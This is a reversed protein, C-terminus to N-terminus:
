TDGKMLLGNQLSNVGSADTVWKRFDNDIWVDEQEVPFVHVAEFDSWTVPANKNITGPVTCKGDRGRIGYEFEDVRGSQNYSILRQVFAEGIM